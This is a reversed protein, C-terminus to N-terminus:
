RLILEFVERETLLGNDAYNFLCGYQRHRGVVRFRDSFEYTRYLEVWDGYKEAPLVLLKKSSNRVPSSNIFKEFLGGPSMDNGSDILIVLDYEALAKEIKPLNIDVSSNEDM